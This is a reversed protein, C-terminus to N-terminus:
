KTKQGKLGLEQDCIQRSLPALEFGQARIQDIWDGLIECFESCKKESQRDHLLIISGPTFNRISKMARKRTWPIVADYYRQNWLILPLRMEKLVSFLPPNLIGNPPRFGVTEKLGLEKFIKESSTIWDKMKERSQFFVGYTHDLSHNGIAHGQDRIEQFLKPNKQAKEAVVFFTAQVNKVKLVKLVQPTSYTDPGDDFTLYLPAKPKQIQRILIDM